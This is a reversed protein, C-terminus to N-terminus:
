DDGAQASGKKGIKLDEVLSTTGIKERENLKLESRRGGDRSANPFFRETFANVIDSAEYQRLEDTM